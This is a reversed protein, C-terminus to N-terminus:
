DDGYKIMLLLVLRGKVGGAWVLCRPSETAMSKMPGKGFSPSYLEMIGECVM